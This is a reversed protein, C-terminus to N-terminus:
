LTPAEPGIIWDTEVEQEKCIEARWDIQCEQATGQLEGGKCKLRIWGARWELVQMEARSPRMVAKNEASERFRKIIIDLMSSIIMM